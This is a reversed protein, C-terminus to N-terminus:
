NLPRKILMFLEGEHKMHGAAIEAYQDQGWFIDARGAGRIAGGTDQNLVFRSFDTWDDIEGNDDLVPKKCSIFCLAGKPFLRYDLAISRRPTLPVNINGLPGDELVEVVECPEGQHLVRTGIMGRLQTLTIEIATM